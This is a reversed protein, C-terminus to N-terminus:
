DVAGHEELFQVIETGAEVDTAAALPTRMLNDFLNVEAGNEVLFKVIEFQKARVAKHLPTQVFGGEAQNLLMPDRSIEAKVTDLDGAGIAKFLVSEVEEPAAGLNVENNGCGALVLGLVFACALSWAKVQDIPLATPIASTGPAEGCRGGAFFLGHGIRCILKKTRVVGSGEARGRLPARWKESTSPAGLSGATGGRLGAWPTDM